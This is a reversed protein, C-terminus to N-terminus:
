IKSQIIKHKKSLKSQQIPQISIFHYIFKFLLIRNQKSGANRKVNNGLMNNNNNDNLVFSIPKSRVQYQKYGRNHIKM